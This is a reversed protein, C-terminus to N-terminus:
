GKSAVIRTWIKDGPQIQRDPTLLVGERAVLAMEEELGLAELLQRATKPRPIVRATTEPAITLYIIPLCPGQSLTPM